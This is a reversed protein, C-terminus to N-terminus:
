RRWTNIPAGPPAIFPEGNGDLEVHASDMCVPFSSLGCPLVNRRRHDYIFPYIVLKPKLDANRRLMHLAHVTGYGGMSLNAVRVDLAQGIRYVFTQENPLNLGWTFSCGVVMIDVHEPTQEGPVSVRAGRRDTYVNWPGPFGAVESAANPRPVYGAEADYVLLPDGRVYGYVAPLSRYALIWLAFLGAGGVLALILTWGAIKHRLAM